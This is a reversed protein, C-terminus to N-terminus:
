LRIEEGLLPFAGLETAETVAPAETVYSPDLQDLSTIGILGMANHIEAELIELARILTATGGVALAWAQLRGIAVADAGLALAKLVDSGRAIGSDLVIEPGAM